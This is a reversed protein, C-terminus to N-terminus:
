TSTHLQTASLSLKPQSYVAEAPVTASSKELSLQTHSLSFLSQTVAEPLELPSSACSSASSLLSYALLFSSNSETGEAVGESTM